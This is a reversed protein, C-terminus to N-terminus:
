SSVRIMAANILQPIANNSYRSCTGAFRMPVCLQRHRLQLDHLLHDRQRYERRERHPVQALREPEVVPPAAKHMHPAAYKM